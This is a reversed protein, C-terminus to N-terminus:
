TVKVFLRGANRNIIEGSSLLDDFANQIRHRSQLILGAQPPGSAYGARSLQDDRACAVDNGILYAISEDFGQAHKM